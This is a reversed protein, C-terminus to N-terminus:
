KIGFYTMNVGGSPVVVEIGGGGHVGLGPAPRTIFPTGPKITAIEIFNASAVNEPPIGYKAAYGPTNPNEISWFQAEAVQCGPV